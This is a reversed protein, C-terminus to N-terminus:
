GMKLRREVEARADECMQAVDVDHIVKNRVECSEKMLAWDRGIGEARWEYVDGSVRSSQVLAHGRDRRVDDFVGLAVRLDESSAVAGSALISALVASDEICMGAGAGHHPSTAHAADGTVAVPLTPHVFTPVPHSGTDFIAWQSM